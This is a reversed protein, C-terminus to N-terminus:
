LLPMACNIMPGPMGNEHAFQGTIHKSMQFRPNNQEHSKGLGHHQTQSLLALTRTTKSELEAKGLPLGNLAPCTATKSTECEKPAM